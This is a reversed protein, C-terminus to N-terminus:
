PRAIKPRLTCFLIQRTTPQCGFSGRSTSLQLFKNLKTNQLLIFDFRFGVITQHLELIDVAMFVHFMGVASPGHERDVKDPRRPAAPAKAKADAEAGELGANNEGREAVGAGACGYPLDVV